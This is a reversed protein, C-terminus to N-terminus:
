MPRVEIRVAYTKPKGKEQAYDWQVRPDNDPVGLWDAVGDVTAKLSARLNDHGDLARPAIRVLRVLVPGLLRPEKDAARLEAWATTRHMKARSARKSWHERLNAVSAARIPLTVTLM